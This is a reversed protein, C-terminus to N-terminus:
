HLLFAGAGGHRRCVTSRAPFRSVRLGASRGSVARAPPRSRSIPEYTTDDLSTEASPDSTYGERALMSGVSFPTIAPGECEQFYIVEERFTRMFWNYSLCNRLYCFLTSKRMEQCVGVCTMSGIQLKGDRNAATTMFIQGFKLTAEDRWYNLKALFTQWKQSKPVM